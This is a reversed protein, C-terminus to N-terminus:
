SILVDEDGVNAPILVLEIVGEPASVTPEVEWFRVSWPALVVIVLVLPALVAVSLKTAGVALTVYRRWVAAAPVYSTQVVAPLQELTPPPTVVAPPVVLSRALNVPECVIPFEMM